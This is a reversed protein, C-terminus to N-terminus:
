TQRQTEFSRAMPFAWWKDIAVLIYADKNFENPLPRAFKLQIKENYKVIQNM